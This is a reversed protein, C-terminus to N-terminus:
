ESSEFGLDSSFKYNEKKLGKFSLKKSLVQKVM